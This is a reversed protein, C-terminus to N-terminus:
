HRPSRERWTRPAAWAWYHLFLMRPTEGTMHQHIAVINIGGGRLAKLVNKVGVFGAEGVM